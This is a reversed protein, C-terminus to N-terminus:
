PKNSWCVSNDRDPSNIDIPEQLIDELAQRDRGTIAQPDLPPDTQPPGKGDLYVLLLRLMDRNKPDLDTHGIWDTVVDLAAQHQGLQDKGIAYLSAFHAGLAPTTATGINAHLKEVEDPTPVKSLLIQSDSLAAQFQGQLLAPAHDVAQQWAAKAADANGQYEALRAQVTFYWPLDSSSLKSSDIRALLASAGDAGDWHGKRSQLLAARLLYAPSDTATVSQLAAAAQDLQSESLYATVLDLNLGDKTATDLNPIALAKQFCSVAESVIGDQLARRGRDSLESANELDSEKPANPLFPVPAAEISDSASNASAPVTADQALVRTALFALCGWTWLLKM